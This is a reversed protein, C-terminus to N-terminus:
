DDLDIAAIFAAHDEPSIMIARGDGYEIRLRNLSLAPSSLASGSPQVSTIAARDIHWSFPGSRVLLADESVIYRTSFLLWIPLGVAIVTGVALAISRSIEANANNRWAWFFVLTTLAIIAYYWWDVASKFVTTM